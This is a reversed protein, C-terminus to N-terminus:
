MTFTKVDKWSDQEGAVAQNLMEVDGGDIVIGVQFPVDNTHNGSCNHVRIKYTGKPADKTWVINEVPRDASQRADVDLVGGCASKKKNYSIVAGSPCTVYLDLDNKREADSHDWMLSIALSGVGKAKKAGQEALRATLQAKNQAEQEASVTTSGTSATPRPTRVREHEVFVSLPSRLAGNIIYQVKAKCPVHRAMDYENHKGAAAVEIETLSEEDNADCFLIKYAIEEEQKADYDFGLNPAEWKLVSGEKTPELAPLTVGTSQLVQMHIVHHHMHRSIAIQVCVMGEASFQWKASCVSCMTEQTLVVAMQYLVDQLARMKAEEAM